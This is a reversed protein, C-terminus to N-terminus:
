SRRIKEGADGARDARQQALLADAASVQRGGERFFRGLLDLRDQGADPVIEAADAGLEGMDIVDPIVIRRMGLFAADLDRRARVFQERPQFVVALGRQNKGAMEAIPFKRRQGPGRVPHIRRHQIAPGVAGAGVADDVFHAPDVHAFQNRGAAVRREPEGFRQLLALMDAHQDILIQGAADLHREEPSFGAGIRHQRPQPPVDIARDVAGADDAQGAVTEEGFNRFLDCGTRSAEPSISMWPVVCAIM